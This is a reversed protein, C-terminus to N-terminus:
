NRLSRPSAFPGTQIRTPMNERSNGRNCHLDVLGGEVARSRSPQGAPKGTSAPAQWNPSSSSPSNFLFGGVGHWYCAGTWFVLVWLCHGALPAQLNPVAHSPKRRFWNAWESIARCYRSLRIGSGVPLGRAGAVQPEEIAPREKKPAPPRKGIRFPTPPNAILNMRRM